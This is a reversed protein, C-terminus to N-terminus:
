QQQANTTHQAFAPANACHVSAAADVHRRLTSPLVLHSTPTPQQTQFTSLRKLHADRRRRGKGVIRYWRAMIIVLLLSYNITTNYGLRQLLIAM